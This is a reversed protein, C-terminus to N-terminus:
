NKENNKHKFLPQIAIYIGFMLLALGIWASTHNFTRSATFFIAGVIAPRALPIGKFKM